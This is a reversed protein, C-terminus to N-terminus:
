LPGKPAVAALYLLFYHSYVNNNSECHSYQVYICMFLICLYVYILYIIIIDYLIRLVCVYVCVSVCVLM